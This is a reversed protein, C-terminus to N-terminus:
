KKKLIWKNVSADLAESHNRKNWKEVLDRYLSYIERRVMYEM